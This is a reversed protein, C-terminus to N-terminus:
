GEVPAPPNDNAGRMSSAEWAEVQAASYLVSGRLKTYAPGVGQSRWNALTGSTVTGRWRNVLDQPTYFAQQTM